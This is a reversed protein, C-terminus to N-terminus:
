SSSQSEIFDAAERTGGCAAFDAAMDQAARRYRPDHLVTELARRIARPSSRRLRLGAGVAEARRCVLAQESTQPFLVMPVACLLSESVSNMGCHTLFVDARALIELQNVRPFVRVNAPIEGLAALDTAEGVSVVADADMRALARICRRYFAPTDSVVTGLSVYVLPRPQAARPHVGLVSPGVFRTNPGFRDGMPQFRRSTYVLTPTQDDNQILSVMDQADFGRERLARLRAEIRRMGLIMYLIEVPHPKMLAAVDKSMAFSTTSCVQAVGMRQALLKGWICLSDVVAVDPPDAEFARRVAPELALTVDAAMEILLSFDAKVRRGLDAPAPPLAADIPCFAAGTAEIKGRFAEANWASLRHGRAILERMLPLTPNIHGHAPISFFVVHM